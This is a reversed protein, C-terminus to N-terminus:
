CMYINTFHVRKVAGTKMQVIIEGDGSHGVVNGESPNIQGYQLKFRVTDGELWTRALTKRLKDKAFKIDKELKHLKDSLRVMRMFMFDFEKKKVSGM